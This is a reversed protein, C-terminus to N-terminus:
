LGEALLDDYDGEHDRALDELQENWSQKRRGISGGSGRQSSSRSVPAPRASPTHDSGQRAPGGGRGSGGGSGGGLYNPMDKARKPQRPERLTM